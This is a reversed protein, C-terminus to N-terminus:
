ASRWHPPTTKEFYPLQEVSQRWAAVRPGIVEALGYAPAKAAVRILIATLPYLAFDAATPTDGALFSSQLEDEIRAFELALAARADAIAASDPQGDRRMLTENVLRRVHPYVYLDADSAMRRAIARANLNSPWLAAAGSAYRDALYEVIAASESLVFGEDVIAPAKGRPNIALYSSSKLDGRDISLIKMDYPVRLHELALWVKWSFPSGSLYYFTLGM